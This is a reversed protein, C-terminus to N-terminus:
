YGSHGSMADWEMRRAEMEAENFRSGKWSRSAKERKEGHPIPDFWYLEYPVEKKQTALNWWKEADDISPIHVYSAAFPKRYQEYVVSGEPFDPLDDPVLRAERDTHGTTPAKKSADWYLYWFSIQVGKDAKEADEKAKAKENIWGEYCPLHAYGGYQHPGMTGLYSQEGPHIQKLCLPCLRPIPKGTDSGNYSATAWTGEPSCYRTVDGPDCQCSQRWTESYNEGGPTWFEFPKDCKKCTPVTYVESPPVTTLKTEM